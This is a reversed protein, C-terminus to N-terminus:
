HTRIFARESQRRKERVSKGRERNARREQGPSKLRKESGEKKFAATLEQHTQERPSDVSHENCCGCESGWGDWEDWEHDEM